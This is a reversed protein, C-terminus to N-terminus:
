WIEVNLVLPGRQTGGAAGQRPTVSVCRPQPSFELRVHEDIVGSVRSAWAESERQSKRLSHARELKELQLWTKRLM